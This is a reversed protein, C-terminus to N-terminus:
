DMAVEINLVVDPHDKKMEDEVARLEKLLMKLNNLAIRNGNIAIKINMGRV